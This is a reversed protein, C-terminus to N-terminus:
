TYNHTIADWEGLPCAVHPMTVGISIFCDKEPHRAKCELCIDGDRCDKKQRCISMRAESFTNEPGSEAPPTM